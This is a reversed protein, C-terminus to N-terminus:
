AFLVSFDAGWNADSPGFRLEGDIRRVLAQIIKMGLGKCAAPDFDGPLRSGRNSVSLLHRNQSDSELRVIIPGEGHKVANTLLESVIFALPVAKSM